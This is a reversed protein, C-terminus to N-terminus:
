SGLVLVTVLSTVGKLNRSPTVTHRAVCWVPCKLKDTSSLSLITNFLKRVAPVSSLQEGSARRSDKSIMNVLYVCFNNKDSNFYQLSKAGPSTKRPLQLSQLKKEECYNSSAARRLGRPTTKKPCASFFIFENHRAEPLFSTEEGQSGLFPQLKMWYWERM